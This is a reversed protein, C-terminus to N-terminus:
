AAEACPPAVCVGSWNEALQDEISPLYPKRSGGAEVIEFYQLPTGRHALHVYGGMTRRVVDGRKMAEIAQGYNM